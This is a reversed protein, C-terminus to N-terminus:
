NDLNNVVEKAHEIYESGGSLDSYWMDLWKIAEDKASFSKSLRDSYGNDSYMVNLNIPSKNDSYAVYVNKVIAGM